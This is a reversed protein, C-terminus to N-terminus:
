IRSSWFPKPRGREPRRNAACIDCRNEIQEDESYALTLNFLSMRMRSKEPLVLYLHQGRLHNSDSSIFFGFYPFREKVM